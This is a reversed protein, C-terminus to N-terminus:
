ISSWKNKSYKYNLGYYAKKRVGAPARNLMKAITEIPTNQKILDVLTLLEGSDWNKTKNKEIKPTTPIIGKKYEIFSMIYKESVEMTPLVENLKDNNYLFQLYELVEDGEITHKM